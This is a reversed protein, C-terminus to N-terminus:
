QFTNRMFGKFLVTMGLTNWLYFINFPLLLNMTITAIDNFNNNM